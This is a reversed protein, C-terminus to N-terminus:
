EGSDGDGARERTDPPVADNQGADIVPSGHLLRLNDDETGVEDDRGEPDFFLPDADINGTGSSFMDLGQIDSFDVTASSTGDSSIQASEDMNTGDTDTNGWFISNAIDSTSNNQNSMGGGSIAATNGSFTCNTVTSSSDNNVM